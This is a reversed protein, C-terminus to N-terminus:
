FKFKLISEKDVTDEAGWNGLIEGIDTLDLAGDENLDLNKPNELFIDPLALIDDQNIEGDNNFDGFKLGEEAIGKFDLPLAYTKVIIGNLSRRRTYDRHITFDYTGAAFDKLVISAEGFLNTQITETYLSTSRDGPNWVELTLTDSHGKILNTINPISLIAQKLEPNSLIADISTLSNPDIDIIDPDSLADSLAEETQEAGQIEELIEGVRENVYVEIVNILEDLNTQDNLPLYGGEELYGLTMYFIFDKHTEYFRLEIPTAEEIGYPFFAQEIAQRIRNRVSFENQIDDSEDSGASGVDGVAQAVLEKRLIAQQNQHEELISRIRDLLFDDRVEKIKVEVNVNLDFVKGEELYPPVYIPEKAYIPVTTEGCDNVLQIAYTYTKGYDRHQTFLDTYGRLLNEVGDKFLYLTEIPKMQSISINSGLGRYIIAQIRSTDYENLGGSIEPSLEDYKFLPTFPLDILPLEALPLSRDLSFLNKLQTQSLTSLVKLTEFNWGLNVAMYGKIQALRGYLDSVSLDITPCYAHRGGGTPPAAGGAPLFTAYGDGAAVLDDNLTSCTASSMDTGGVCVTEVNPGTSCYGIESDAGFYTDCDAELFSTCDCGGGGCGTNPDLSVGCRDPPATGCADYLTGPTGDTALGGAGVGANAVITGIMKNTIDGTDTNCTVAIRGGGGGGGRNPGGAIGGGAGAAIAGGTGITLTDTTVKITGGSGGGYGIGQSMGGMANLLGDLTLTQAVNLVISTGGTGGGTPVEPDGALGGGSSGYFPTTIQDDGYTVGGAVPTGNEDGQGGAGGYGGGGTGAPALGGSGAGGTSSMCVNSANPGYGENTDSKAACGKPGQVAGTGVWASTDIILNRLNFNVNAYIKTNGDLDLDITPNNLTFDGEIPVEITVNSWTQHDGDAISFTLDNGIGTIKLNVATGMNFSPPSTSTFTTPGNLTVSASNDFTMSSGTFSISTLATTSYITGILKMEDTASLSLSTVGDEFYFADSIMHEMTFSGTSSMSSSFRFSEYLKVDNGEKVYVTGYYACSGAPMCGREVSFTTDGFDFNSNTTYTLAIMGGSAGNGRVVTGGGDGGEAAFTGETGGGDSITDATINITGGAGGGSAPNFGGAGSGDGGNASITGNHTFTGGIDLIVLGGGSGAVVNADNGGSAGFLIPNTTSDYYHTTGSSSYANNGHAGGTQSVGTGLGDVICVNTTSDTPGYGNSDFGGTNVCGKEDVNIAGGGSGGDAAITFDGTTTIDLGDPDAAVHTLTVGDEITVSAVSLPEDLICIGNGGDQFTLNDSSTYSSETISTSNCSINYDAAFIRSIEDFFASGIVMVLAISLVFLYYITHLSFFKKMLIKTKLIKLHM